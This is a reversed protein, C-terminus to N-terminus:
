SAGMKLAVAPQRPLGPDEGQVFAEEIISQEIDLCGVGSCSSSNSGLGSALGSPILNSLGAGVPFNFPKAFYVYEAPISEGLGLRECLVYAFTQCNCGVLRYREGPYEKKMSVLLGYVERRRMLTTGLLVTARHRDADYTGPKFSRVGRDGFAFECGYIEVGLHMIPLYESALWSADYVHLKVPAGSASNRRRSQRAPSAAEEPRAAARNQAKAQGAAGGAAGTPELASTFVLRKVLGGSGENSRGTDRAHVAERSAQGASRASSPERELLEKSWKRTRAAIM